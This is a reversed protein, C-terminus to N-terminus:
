TSGASGLGSCQRRISDFGSPTRHHLGSRFLRPKRQPCRVRQHRRNRSGQHQGLNRSPGPQSGPQRYYFSFGPRRRVVRVKRTHVGRWGGRYELLSIERSARRAPRGQSDRVGSGVGPLAIGSGRGNGKAGSFYFASWPHQGGHDAGHVELVCGGSQVFALGQRDSVRPHHIDCGGCHRGRDLRRNPCHERGSSIGELGADGGHCHRSGSLNGCHHDGARLGLYANAAGLVITMALGLLIARWTFERMEMGEPVYPQFKKQSEPAPVPGDTSM